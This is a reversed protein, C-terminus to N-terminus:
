LTHRKDLIRAAIAEGIPLSATAAPSPANLVHVSRRGETILFDDVLGGAPTIAQARVGAPAAVLDEAVVDPILRQLARVFARKSLSRRYEASGTRWHQRALRWFGPYAMMGAIDAPSLQWTRYGERRLALVANPGAHVGGDVGRTFHVGLFPFAPDPVPYILNRVLSRRGPVLEYYEGRFPLIRAPSNLGALAAIRDSYLGACNVLIQCRMETGTSLGLTIADQREAIETVAAATRLQAGRGQAIRLYSAAVAGYDTIGTIPVHLAALALVHPERQLIEAHTLRATEIGNAAANREIRALHERESDTTAVILKGCPECPIGHDRCFAYMRRAGQTAYRAKMTGPRYYCGSHIVGSNRGTQHRGIGPEKELVVVTLEPAAATVAMATSLGVIGAGVVAVDFTDM